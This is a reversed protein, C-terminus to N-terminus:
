ACTDGSAKCDPVYHGYKQCKLCRRLETLKKRVDIYKGEIFLGAQIANNAANRDNFGIIIHAVKQNENHLHPPKIYKSFAIINGSIGSDEEVKTHAYSSGADFTTPVFEAIIYHLKNQINSTGSYNAIFVKQVDLQKIWHGANM